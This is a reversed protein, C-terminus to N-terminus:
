LSLSAFLPWRKPTLRKPTLARVNALENSQATAAQAAAMVRARLHAPPACQTVLPLLEVVHRLEEAERALAPDEALLHQLRAASEADLDQLAHQSLLDAIPDTNRDENMLM